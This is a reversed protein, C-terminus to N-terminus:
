YNGFYKRLFWETSFITIILFLILKYNILDSISKESYIVPKINENESINEVIQMYNETTVSIANTNNAVKNLLNHNAIINDAEVNVDIVSFKGSKSYKKNNREMSATYSFIGENLAGINLKYKNTYKNFIYNYTRNLTDTIVLKVENENNLEFSENYFEAEFEIQDAETYLKKAQVIFNDKTVKLSLYQVIKNILSYVANHNENELYNTIEWRWIGEGIIYGIKMDINNNFAILPKSTSIKKINQNFLMEVTSNVKYEGFHTNLPPLKESLNIIDDDLTFLTFNKNQSIRADEFASRPQIIQLGFKYSNFNSIATQNGIIFLIPIKKTIIKSFIDSIPFKASPLQNLIILNYEELNGKFQDINFVNIDFNLNQILANKITGVDPHPSNSLILIKQKTDIIDIAITKSNNIINKEDNLPLFKITYHQLGIKNAEIDVHITETYNNSKISIDKSFIEKGNNLVILKSNNNRYGYSNLNIRLPFKNGLFAIQNSNIESILNDKQFSSDGLAITYVPYNIKNTEYFPDIGKNFIGDSILINAGINRNPYNESIYKFIDSISTQNDLYSFTTSDIINEGFSIIKVDYSDSLKSKLDNVIKPIKNITFSDSNLKISESNDVSIFIIPKEIFNEETNILPSLLLFLVLFIGVFRLFYLVSKIIKNVENFRNDKKFLYYTLIGSIIVILPLFLYPYPIDFLLKM